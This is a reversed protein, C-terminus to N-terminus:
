GQVALTVSGLALYKRVFRRHNPVMPQPLRNISFYRNTDTEAIKKAPQCRYFISLARGLPHEKPKWKYIEILKVLKVAMGLERRGIRNAMQPLTEDRLAFGGPIHWQGKFYKGEYKTLLIEQGKKRTIVLEVAWWSIAQHLKEFIGVPFWNLGALKQLARNITKIEAFSPPKTM